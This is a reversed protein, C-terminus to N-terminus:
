ENFDKSWPFRVLANKYLFFDPYVVSHDTTVVIAASKMTVSDGFINKLSEIVSLLTNGSDVADDVILINKVISKQCFKAIVETGDVDGVNAIPIDRNLHYHEIKRLLNTISYPLLLIAKFVIRGALSEKKKTTSRRKKVSYFDCSLSDKMNEAVYDGGTAISIVVDPLFGSDSVKTSLEVCSKKFKKQGLTYVPIQIFKFFIRTKQLTFM